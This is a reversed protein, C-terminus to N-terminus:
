DASLIADLRTQASQAAWRVVLYMSTRLRPTTSHGSHACIWMPRPPVSPRKREPAWPALMTGSSCQVASDSTSSKQVTPLASKLACTTTPPTDDWDRDVAKALASALRAWMTDLYARRGTGAPDVLPLVARMWAATWRCDRVLPDATYATNSCSTQPATKSEASPCLANCKAAAFPSTAVASRSMRLPHETSAMLLLSVGSCAAALSFLTRVHWTRSSWPADSWATPGICCVARCTAVDVPLWSHIRM